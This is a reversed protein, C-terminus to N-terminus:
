PTPSLGIIDGINFHRAVQSIQLLIWSDLEQILTIDL